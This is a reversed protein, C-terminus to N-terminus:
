LVPEPDASGRGGGMRNPFLDSGTIQRYEDLLPGIRRQFEAHDMGESDDTPTEAREASSEKGPKTAIGNLAARVEFAQMAIGMAGKEMSALRIDEAMADAAARDLPGVYRRILGATDAAAGARKRKTSRSAQTALAGHHNHQALYGELRRGLPLLIRNMVRDVPRAPLGHAMQYAAHLQLGRELMLDAIRKETADLPRKKSM